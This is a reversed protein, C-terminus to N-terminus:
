DRRRRRRRCRHHYRHHFRRRHHHCPRPYRQRSSSHGRRRNQASSCRLSQRQRKRGPCYPRCTKIQTSEQTTKRKTNPSIRMSIKVPIQMPILTSLDKKTEWKEADHRKESRHFAPTKNPKPLRNQNAHRAKEALQRLQHQFTYEQSAPSYGQM